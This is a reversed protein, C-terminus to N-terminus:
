NLAEGIDGATKLVESTLSLGAETVNLTTNVGTIFYAWGQSVWSGRDEHEAIDQTISGGISAIVTKSISGNTIGYESISSHKAFVLFCPM